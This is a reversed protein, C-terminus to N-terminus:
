NGIMCKLIALADNSDAVSISELDAIVKATGKMQEKTLQSRFEFGLESCLM